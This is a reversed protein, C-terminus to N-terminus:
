IMGDSCLLSSKLFNFIRCRFKMGKAYIPRRGVYTTENITHLQEIEWIFTCSIFYPREILFKVPQQIQSDTTIPASLLPYVVFSERCLQLDVVHAYII